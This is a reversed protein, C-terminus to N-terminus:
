AANQIYSVHHRDATGKAKALLRLAEKLGNERLWEKRQADGDRFTPTEFTIPHNGEVPNALEILWCSEGGEFRIEIIRELVKRNRFTEGHRM